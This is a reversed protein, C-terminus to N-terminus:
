KKEYSGNDTKTKVILLVADFTRAKVGHITNLLFKDDGNEHYFLDEIM